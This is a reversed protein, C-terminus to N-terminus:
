RILNAYVRDIFRIPNTRVADWEATPNAAVIDDLSQGQAILAAIRDRLVRVMEVYDRLDAYTAVPGHGPVVVTEENIHMLVAECFRIVGDVDGGNDADIFPYSENNYVDGMHVVNHSRFIVAADGTTHAAGFHLLELREGSFHMQMSEDFTAVPLAAAEYPEYSAVRAVNNVTRARMLMDRSNAHSVIWSGQAGLSRNGEAHDAHWHTNIVFDINGGGLESIRARYAAVQNQYQDDVVLVGQSGISVVINGGTAFYLVYLGEGLQQTRIAAADAPSTVLGQSMVAQCAMSAAAAVVM